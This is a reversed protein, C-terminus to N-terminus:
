ESPLLPIDVPADTAMSVFRHSGDFLADMDASEAEFPMMPAASSPVQIVFGEDDRRYAEKASGAPRPHRHWLINAHAVAGPVLRPANVWRGDREALYFLGDLTGVASVFPAREGTIPLDSAPIETWDVPLAFVGGAAEILDARLRRHEQLGTLASDNDAGVRFATGFTLLYTDIDPSKRLAELAPDNLHRAEIVVPGASLGESVTGTEPDFVIVDSRPDVQGTATDDWLHLYPASTVITLERPDRALMVAAQDQPRVIAPVFVTAVDSLDSGAEALLVPMIGHVDSAAVRDPLDEPTPGSIRRLGEATVSWLAFREDGWLAELGHGGLDTPAFGMAHGGRAMNDFWSQPLPM